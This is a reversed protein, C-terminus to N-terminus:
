IKFFFLAAVRDGVRICFMSQIFVLRLVRTQVFGFIFPSFQNTFEAGDEFSSLAYGLRNAVFGTKYFERLGISCM